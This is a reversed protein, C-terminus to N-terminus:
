QTESNRPKPELGRGHVLEASGNPQPKRKNRSGAPRGPLRKLPGQALHYGKTMYDFVLREDYNMQSWLEFVDKVKTENIANVEIGEKARVM